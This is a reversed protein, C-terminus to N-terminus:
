PILEQESGRRWECLMVTADDQLRGGQHAMIAHRLRRLTEPAPLTPDSQREIFEVLREATFQEGDPTRAETVGDTYFLIRDGPELAERSATVPGQGVSIGLPTFAPADLVKVLRGERILLPPPHGANVWRFSGTAVNLRALVATAFREEGYLGRLADDIESYGATLDLGRRRGNRYATVAVSAAAAAALGHGMADFIALHAYPQNLAYDFSDGGAQYCPEMIGAIVLGEAASTLPPLMQRQLEAAVSMPQLRRAREFRDGYGGKSIVLQAALHAYRECVTQVRVHVEGGPAPVNVSMVGVRETGDVLPVWLQRRGAEGLDLAVIQQNAFCRGAVTGSIRLLSGETSGEGSAPLLRLHLQELDVLYLALDRLDAQEAHSAVANAVTDPTSLHTALLVGTFLDEVSRADLVEYSDPREM